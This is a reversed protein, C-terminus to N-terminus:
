NQEDGAPNLAKSSLIVLLKIWHMHCSTAASKWQSGFLYKGVNEKFYFKFEIVKTQFSVKKNLAASCLSFSEQEESGFPSDITEMKPRQDM